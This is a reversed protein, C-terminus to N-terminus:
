IVAGPLVTLQGTLSLTQILLVSLAATKLISSIISKYYLVVGVEEPIKREHETDILDGAIPPFSNGYCDSLVSVLTDSFLSFYFTSFVEAFLSSCYATKGCM